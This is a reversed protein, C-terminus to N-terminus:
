KTVPEQVPTNAAVATFVLRGDVADVQVHNGDVTEGQILQLALPDVIQRQIVRKLPRAGYVPDYGEEILVDLATTTLELSIGRQGLLHRLHM